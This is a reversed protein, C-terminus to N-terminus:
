SPNPALAGALEPRVIWADVVQLREGTVAAAAKSLAAKPSPDGCAAPTESDGLRWTLRGRATREAVLAYAVPGEGADIVIWPAGDSGSAILTAKFAAAAEAQSGGLWLRVKTPTVIWGDKVGRTEVLKDVMGLEVTADVQRHLRCPWGYRRAILAPGDGAGRLTEIGSEVILPTPKTTPDGPSASPAVSPAVSPRPTAHTPLSSSTPIAISGPAETERGLLYGGGLIALAAVAAVLRELGARRRPRSSPLARMDARVVHLYAPGPAAPRWPPTQPLEAEIGALRRRVTAPIEIDDPRRIPDTM